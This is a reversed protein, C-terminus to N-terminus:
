FYGSSPLVVPVWRCKTHKTLFNFSQRTVIRKISGRFTHLKDVFYKKFTQDVKNKKTILEKLGWHFNAQFSKRNTRQLYKMEFFNGSHALPRLRVFIYVCSCIRKESAIELITFFFKEFAGWLICNKGSFLLIWDM